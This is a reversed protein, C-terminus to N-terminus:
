DYFKFYVSVPVPSLSVSEICPSLSHLTVTVTVTLSLELSARSSLRATINAVEKIRIRVASGFLFGEVMGECEGM